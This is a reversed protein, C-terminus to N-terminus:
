LFLKVIESKAVIRKFFVFNPMKILGVFESTIM